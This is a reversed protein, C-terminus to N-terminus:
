SSLKCAVVGVIHTEEKEGARVVYRGVYLAHKHFPYHNLPPHMIAGVVARGSSTSNIRVAFPPVGFIRSDLNREQEVKHKRPSFM